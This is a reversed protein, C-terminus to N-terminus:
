TTWRNCSRPRIWTLAARYRQLGDLKEKPIALTATSDAPLGLDTLLAARAQDDTFTDAVWIYVDAFFGSVRQLVTKKPKKPESM